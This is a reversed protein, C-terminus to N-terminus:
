HHLELGSLNADPPLTGSGRNQDSIAETENRTEGLHGTDKSFVSKCCTFTGIGPFRIEMITGTGLVVKATRTKTGTM